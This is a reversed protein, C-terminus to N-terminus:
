EFVSFFEEETPLKKDVQQLWESCWLWDADLIYLKTNLRETVDVIEHIDGIMKEMEDNFGIKQVLEDEQTKPGIIKVLDGIKLDDM